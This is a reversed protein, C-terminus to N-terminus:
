QSKPLTTLSIRVSSIDGPVTCSLELLNIKSYRGVGTEIQQAGFIFVECLSLTNSSHGSVIKVSKVPFSIRPSPIVVYDDEDYLAPETYSYSSTASNSDSQATLRFGM